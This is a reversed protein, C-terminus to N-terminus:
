YPIDYAVLERGFDYIHLLPEDSIGFIDQFLTPTDSEEATEMFHSLFIDSHDFEEKIKNFTEPPLFSPMRSLILDLAIELRQNLDKFKLFEALEQKHQEKLATASKFPTSPYSDDTQVLSDTVTMLLENLPVDSKSIM